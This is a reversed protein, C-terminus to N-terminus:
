FQEHLHPVIYPFITHLTEATDAIVDGWGRHTLSLPDMGSFVMASLGNITVEGEPEGGETVELVGDNGAFTWIGENWPAHPDTIKLTAQGHGAGIGSLGQVSIVRGMPADWSGDENTLMEVSGDNTLWLFPNEEPLIPMRIQKVHDVHRALFDLMNLRGNMTRWFAAQVDMRNHELNMKYSLGATVDDGEHLMAFWTPHSEITGDFRSFPLHSMGHVHKMVEGQMAYFERKAHKSLVHTVTGTKPVKLFPALAAPDIRANMPAQWGAYGFLEYFSTKFPYLTSVVQRDAHMEEILRQLLARIHGGRRAEPMTAVGTVGGMPLITGRVNMTMPIAGVKAVAQNDVYSFFSKDEERGQLYRFEEEPTKKSPTNAFAYNSLELARTSTSSEQRIDFTREATM